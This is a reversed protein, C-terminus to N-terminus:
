IIEVSLEKFPSPALVNFGEQRRTMIFNVSENKSLKLKKYKPQSFNIFFYKKPFTLIESSKHMVKMAVAIKLCKHLEIECDFDNFIEYHFLENYKDYNKRNRWERTADIGEM